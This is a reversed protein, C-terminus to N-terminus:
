RIVKKYLKQIERDSLGSFLERAALLEAGSLSEVSGGAPSPVASRLHSRTDYRRVGGGTALYAEKPTLGLDRLAAYRLPDDLDLVRKGRLHPFIESLTRMDEEELAAYDIEGEESSDESLSAEPVTEDTAEPSNEGIEDCIPATNEAADTKIMPDLESVNM